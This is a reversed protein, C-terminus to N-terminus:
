AVYITQWNSTLAIWAKGDSGGLEVIGAEQAMNVYESFTNVGAKQYTAGKHSVQEGVQSRLVHEKGERLQAQLVKILIIFHAPVGSSYKFKKPSASPKPTGFFSPKSGNFSPIYGQNSTSM